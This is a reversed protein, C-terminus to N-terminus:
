AAACLFPGYTRSHSCGNMKKFLRSFYYPDKFGLMTSIEKISANSLDLMQGARQIKMRLYYDVPSYGTSQKFMFNLHQKSVQVHRGIDDLTVSSELHESLYRIAKEIHGQSKSDERRAAISIVFSLLYRITQSVEVLHVLSYSKSSLLDYCQHYLELFKTEDRAPLIVLSPSAEADLLLLFDAIQTGSLHFWYITWPNEDDAGYAHPIGAPIFIFQRETIRIRENDKTQVWGAGGACYIFIYTDCGTPRERFHNHAQHFCGIDTIYAERTLPHSKVEDLVYHPLVYLKEWDFSTTMQDM